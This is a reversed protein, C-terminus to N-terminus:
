LLQPNNPTNGTNQHLWQSLRPAAELDRNDRLMSLFYQALMDIHGDLYTAAQPKSNALENWHQPANLKPLLFDPTTRKSLEAIIPQKSNITLKTEGAPISFDMTQLKGTAQACGDVMLARPPQNISSEMLRHLRKDASIAVRYNLTQNPAFLLPYHRLLLQHPGSLSINSTSDIQTMVEQKLTQPDFIHQSNGNIQLKEYRLLQPTKTNVAVFVQIRTQDTNSNPRILIILENHTDPQLLWHGNRIASPMIEKFLGSGSSMATTFQRPANENTQKLLLNQGAPLHVILDNDTQLLFTCYRQWTLCEPAPGAIQYLSNEIPQWFSHTPLQKELKEAISGTVDMTTVDMTTIDMATAATSIQYAIAFLLPIFRQRKTNICDQHYLRLILKKM